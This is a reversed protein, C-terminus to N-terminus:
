TAGTINQYNGGVGVDGPVNFKMESISLSVSDRSESNESGIRIDDLLCKLQKQKRLRQIIFSGM